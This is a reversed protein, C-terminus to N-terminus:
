HETQGAVATGSSLVAKSVCWTQAWSSEPGGLHQESLPTPLLCAQKWLFTCVRARVQPCRPCQQLRHSPKNMQEDFLTLPGYRHSTSLSGNHIITIFFVSTLLSCNRM